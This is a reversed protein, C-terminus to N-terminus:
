WQISVACGRDEQGNADVPVILLATTGQPLMGQVTWFRGGASTRMLVAGSIEDYVAFSVAAHGGQKPTYSDISLTVMGSGSVKLTGTLPYHQFTSEAHDELHFVRDTTLSDAPVFGQLQDGTSVEVYAWEGMTALWSVVQGQALRIVERCSGLPDDTLVVAETTYASKEGPFTLEPVSAKKPLAEADIWGIRMEDASIDYQIMAWGDQVGFVQIWDNTSVVAKGGGAQGYAEGPGHYVKYKQGGTFKIKEATLTGWPIDPAVTLKERAEKVTLPFDEMSFYRLDRQYEGYFVRDVEEGELAWGVNEMHLRGERTADIFMTPADPRYYGIHGVHQLLWKGNGDYAFTCTAEQIENDVVYFWRLGGIEGGDGLRDLIVPEEVRPLAYPNNWLFVWDGDYAFALLDHEKGKQVAVFACATKKGPADTDTWGTIEWDKWRSEQLFARISDPTNEAGFATEDYAWAVCPLALLACLILAVWKKM